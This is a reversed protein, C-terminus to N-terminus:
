RAPLVRYELPRLSVSSLAGVVSELRVPRPGPEAQNASSRTALCHFRQNTRGTPGDGAASAGTMLRVWMAKEFMARTVIVVNHRPQIRSVEVSAASVSAHESPTSGVGM